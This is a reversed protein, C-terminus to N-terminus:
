HCEKNIKLKMFRHLIFISGRTNECVQVQQADLSIELNEIRRIELLLSTSHQVAIPDGRTHTELVSEWASIQKM